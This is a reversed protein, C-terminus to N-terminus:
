EENTENGDGQEGGGGGEGNSANSTSWTGASADVSINHVVTGTTFNVMSYIDNGSPVEHHLVIANRDKPVFLLPTFPTYTAKGGANDLFQALASTTGDTIAVKRSSATGGVNGQGVRTKLQQIFLRSNLQVKPMVLDSVSSGNFRVRVMAYRLAFDDRMAVLGQVSSGTMAVFLAKMVSIQLDICQATFGYVGNSHAELLPSAVFENEKTSKDGESQEVVISDGIVASIDYVDDGLVYDGVTSDYVYPVLMMSEANKFVMRNNDTKILSM